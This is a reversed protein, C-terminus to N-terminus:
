ETGKELASVKIVKEVLKGGSRLLNREREPKCKCFVETQSIEMRVIHLMMHHIELASVFYWEIRMEERVTAMSDIMNAMGEEHRGILDWIM